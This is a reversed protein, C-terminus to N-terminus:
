SADGGRRRLRSLSVESIGLYSAIHYQPLRRAWDPHEALFARYRTLADDQQFGLLRRAKQELLWQMRRELARQLIPDGACVAQLAPWPARLLVSDELAQVGHPAPWDPATSVFAGFLDGDAAFGKNWEAGADDPAFFRLMGREVVVVEPLRGGPAVLMAGAGLPCRVFMRALTAATTAPLTGAGTFAALIAQRPSSGDQNM